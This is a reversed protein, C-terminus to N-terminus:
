CLLSMMGITISVKSWTWWWFTCKLYQSGLFPRRDKIQGFFWEKFAKVHLKTIPVSFPWLGIKLYFTFLLVVLMANKKCFAVRGMQITHSKLILEDGSLVKWTNVGWFLRRYQNPCFFCIKLVKVYLTQIPFSFTWFDLKCPLHSYWVVVLM